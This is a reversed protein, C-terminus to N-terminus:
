EASGVDRETALLKLSHCKEGAECCCPCSAGGAHGSGCIEFGEGCVELAGVADDGDEAGAEGSGGAQGGEATGTAEPTAVIGGVEGRGTREQGVRAQDPLKVAVSPM